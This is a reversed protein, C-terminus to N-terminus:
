GNERKMSNYSNIWRNARQALEFRAHLSYGSTRGSGLREYDVLSSPHRLALLMAPLYADKAPLQLLRCRSFSTLAFFMGIAPKKSVHLKRFILRKFLMSTLEEFWNRHIGTRHGFAIGEDSPILAQILSPIVEPPDQLDADMVVSIDSDSNALGTLVAQHQGYNRDHTIVRCSINSKGCARRVLESSQDPSQDDVAIITLHYASMATSLRQTLECVFQETRYLPLIIDVSPIKSASLDM